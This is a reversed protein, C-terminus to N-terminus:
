ASKADQPALGKPPEANFVGTVRRVGIQNKLAAYGDVALGAEQLVEWRRYHVTYIKRRKPFPKGRLKGGLIFHQEEVLENWKLGARKIAVVLSMQDLYPRKNDLGEIADIRKATDMWVEPFSLDAQKIPSTKKTRYAEPFLVFGSSYYPIMPRRRDRMLTIREKPLRMKFAGYIVDWLDDPAWNISAAASCSVHGKRVLNGVENDRILLVDSDVFGSFDTDRKQLCALIKNGHPYPPDFKGETEMPRVECRMRRLAEIAAPDVDAMRHAPCYGVLEVEPPLHERISAALYCALYQYSPPEVIFFLTLSTNAM